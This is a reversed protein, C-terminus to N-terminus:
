EDLDIGIYGALAEAADIYRDRLEHFREDKVRQTFDTYLRIGFDFGEADVIDLIYEEEEKTLTM